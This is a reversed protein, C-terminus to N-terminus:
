CKVADELYEMWKKAVNKSDLRQRITQCNLSIKSSLDKDEVIRCMAKCLASSDGVATLLGTKGDDILDASGGSPCDTSVVPLGLAMAEIVVNPMGEYDSSLVFMAKSRLEEALRSSRGALTITGEPLAKSAAYEELQTHLSGEGYIVLKYDPHKEYFEVFSDILLPFNKQPELRGAAAIIKEREGSYPEPLRETDLPNPLVIGKKQLKDSFFSAAQKTQFVLGAAHPYMLRRLFRTIKKYPMVWPNNRESVVVPIKTGLLALLVYIGIDEPMSLVVDPKVNRVYTRLRFYSEIKKLIRNKALCSIEKITCDEPIQYFIQRGSEMLVLDTKYGNDVAYQILHRIVREAGGSEMNRTVFAIKKMIKM